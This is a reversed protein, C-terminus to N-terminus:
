PAGRPELLQSLSSRMSRAATKSCDLVTDGPPSMLQLRAECGASARRQGHHGRNVPQHSHKVAPQTDRRKIASNHTVVTKALETTQVCPGGTQHM